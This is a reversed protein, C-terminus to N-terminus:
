ENGCEYEFYYEFTRLGVEAKVDTELLQSVMNFQSIPVSYQIRVSTPTEKRLNAQTAYFDKKNCDLKLLSILKAEAIAQNLPESEILGEELYKQEKARDSLIPLVKKMVSLMSKFAMKYYKNDEDIGTKTTTWPLLSSDSSEFIVIGRFHAFDNHYKRTGFDTDWGTLKTKDATVILRGNCVIYWGSKEPDRESLGAIVKIVVSDINKEEIQPNISNSQFLQFDYKPVLDTNIKIKLNKNIPMFHALSVEYILDNIFDDLKFQESVESYINEVIIKTSGDELGTNGIQCPFNWEGSSKWKSVDVDVIFGDDAESKTIVKFKEGLKFLTRKMGVGFQGVSNPTPPAEPDRGFRFAYKQGTEFDFGGCNDFIEFTNKNIKINIEFGSLDELGNALMKSNAADVSNDILDLIARNLPIDRTLM